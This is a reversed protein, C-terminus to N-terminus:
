DGQVGNLALDFGEVWFERSPVDCVVSEEFPGVVASRNSCVILRESQLSHNVHGQQFVWGLHLVILEEFSGFLQDGLDSLNEWM